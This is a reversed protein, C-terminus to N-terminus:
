CFCSRGEKLCQSLNVTSWVLFFGKLIPKKFIKAQGPAALLVQAECNQEEHLQLEDTYNCRLDWIRCVDRM